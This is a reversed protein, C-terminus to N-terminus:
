VKIAQDVVVKVQPYATALHTSFNSVIQENGFFVVVYLDDVTAIILKEPFGCMWQRNDINTKIENILTENNKYDVVHYASCTFTNANMMHVLSAASDVKSISAAPFGLSSDVAEADTIAFVGPKDMVNNEESFDGGMVAFREDEGFKDWVNSLLEVPDKIETTPVKAGCGALSFVLLASLFIALLKKM